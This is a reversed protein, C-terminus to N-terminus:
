AFSMREIALWISFFRGLTPPYGLLRLTTSRARRIVPCPILIMRHLFRRFEMALYERRHGQRHMMLAFWSKM